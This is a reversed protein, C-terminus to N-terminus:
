ITLETSEAYDLGREAKSASCETEWGMKIEAQLIAKAERLREKSARKMEKRRKEDRKKDDKEYSDLRPLQHVRDVGRPGFTVPSAFYPLETVSSRFGSLSEFSVGRKVYACEKVSVTTVWIDDYIM